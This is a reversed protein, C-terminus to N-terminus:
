KVYKLIRVQSFSEFMNEDIKTNKSTNDLQTLTLVYNSKNLDDMVCEEDGEKTELDNVVSNEPEVKNETKIPIQKSLNNYKPVMATIPIERMFATYFLYRKEGMTLVQNLQHCSKNDQCLILIKTNKLSGNQKKRVESPIEDLLLEILCKWKPSSEPDFELLNVLYM